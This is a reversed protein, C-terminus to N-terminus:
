CAAARNFPLGWALGRGRPAPLGHFTGNHEGPKWVDYDPRILTLAMPMGYGSHVKAPLRHRSRDRGPEFSIFPGTHGYGTQIDDVVLLTGHERTWSALTRM